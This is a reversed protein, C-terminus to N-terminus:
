HQSPAAAQVPIPPPQGQAHYSDQFYGVGKSVFDKGIYKVYQRMTNTNSVIEELSKM